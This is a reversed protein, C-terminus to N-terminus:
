QFSKYALLVTRAVRNAGMLTPPSLAAACASPPTAPAYLANWHNTDCSIHLGDSEWEGPDSTYMQLYPIVTPVGAGTGLGSYDTWPYQGAYVALLWKVGGFAQRMCSNGSPTPSSVDSTGPGKSLLV